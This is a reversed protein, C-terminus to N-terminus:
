IDKFIILVFFNFYEYNEFELNIINIKKFVVNM